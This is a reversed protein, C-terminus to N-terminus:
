VEVPLQTSGSRPGRGPACTRRGAACRGTAVCGTPPARRHVVQRERDLGALHHAVDTGVARSLGRRDLHEGADEHRRRALDAHGPELRTDAAGVERPPDPHDESLAGRQPPVQGQPVGELQQLLDVADGGVAVSAVELLEELQEVETAQEVGRDALQAEALPHAAVDGSREEVVGLDEVQVLGRDPEVHDALPPQALEQAAEVGFAAGRQQEGGVVQLVDLREAAPHDHDVVPGRDEVPRQAVQVALAPGGAREDDVQDVRPRGDLHGSGDRALDLSRSLPQGERGIGAGRGITAATAADYSTASREMWSGAISSTM